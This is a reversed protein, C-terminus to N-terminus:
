GRTAEYNEHHARLERSLVTCTRNFRLEAFLSKKKPNHNILAPFSAVLYDCAAQEFAARESRSHQSQMGGVQTYSNTKCGYSDLRIVEGYKVFYRCTREYDSKGRQTVALYDDHTSVFGFAHAVVLMLGHKVKGSFFFANSHPAVGWLGGLPIEEFGRSVMADLDQLVRKENGGLGEILEVDDEMVFVNTGKPYNYHIFNFKETVDKAQTVLVNAPLDGYEEADQEDSLFVDVRSMDVNTQQLYALTKSKFMESRRHSPVAIRYEAAM